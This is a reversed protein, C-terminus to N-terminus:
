FLLGFSFRHTDELRGQDAWAYDVHYRLNDLSSKFGAGGTLGVETDELFLGQWGLRVAFSDRFTLESGFSVSESNDSPHLADVALLLKADGSAFSFPQALGARFTLPVSFPDTDRSGPLAPNDGNQGGVNDYLIALDSGSYEARTGFHSLSAGIRLGDASLRYLTGASFTITGASTHFVTEQVYNAQVAAAFRLSFKHAFGLTVAQDSVTFEEGTGLPQNVTRVTMKGSNLSTFTGYITGAGGLPHAYAIWDHRIGAFWNVHVFEFARKELLAVAAANHFAGALGDGAAAGANGMAALRADPEILTFAGFSTGVKSQAQAVGTFMVLGLLLPWLAKLSFVFRDGQTGRAALGDLPSAVALMDLPPRPADLELAHPMLRSSSAERGGRALCAIARLRESTRTM